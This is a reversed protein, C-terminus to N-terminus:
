VTCRIEKLDLSMENNEHLHESKNQKIFVIKLNANTTIM